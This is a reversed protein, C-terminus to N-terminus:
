AVEYMKQIRYHKRKRSNLKYYVIYAVDIILGQSSVVHVWPPLLQPSPLLVKKNEGGKKKM